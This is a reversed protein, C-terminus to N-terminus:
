DSIASTATCVLDGPEWKRDSGSKLALAIHRRKSTLRGSEDSIPNLRRRRYRDPSSCLPRNVPGRAFCNTPVLKLTGIQWLGALVDGHQAGDANYVHSRIQGELYMGLPPRRPRSVPDTHKWRGNPSRWRRKRTRLVAWTPYEARNERGTDMIKIWGSSRPLVSRACTSSPYAWTKPPMHLDLELVIGRDASEM